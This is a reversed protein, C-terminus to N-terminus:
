STVEEVLSARVLASIDAVGSQASLYGLGRAIHDHLHQRLIAREIGIGRMLADRKLVALYLKEDRGFLTHIAIEIGSGPSRSKYTTPKGESSLSLCLAWRCLVNWNVIGTRRKLTVLQQKCRSDLRLSEIESM